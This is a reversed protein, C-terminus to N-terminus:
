MSPRVCLDFRSAAQGQRVSYQALALVFDQPRIESLISESTLDRLHLRTSIWPERTIRGLIEIPQVFVTAYGGALSAQFPAIDAANRSTALHSAELDLSVM